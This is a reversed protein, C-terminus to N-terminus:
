LEDFDPMDLRRKKEQPSNGSGSGGLAQMHARRQQEWKEKEQEWKARDRRARDLLQQQRELYEKQEREEEERRVRDEDRETAQVGIGLRRVESQFMTNMKKVDLSSLHDKSAECIEDTEIPTYIPRTSPWASNAFFSGLQGVSCRDLNLLEPMKGEEDIWCKECYWSLDVPDVGGKIVDSARSSSSLGQNKLAGQAGGTKQAVGCQACTYDMAAAAASRTAGPLVGQFGVIPTPTPPVGLINTTGMALNAANALEALSPYYATLPKPKM